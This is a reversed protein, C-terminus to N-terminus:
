PNTPATNTTTISTVTQRSTLAGGAAVAASELPLLTAPDFVISARGGDPVTISFQIGSRGTSDTRLAAVDASAVGALAAYTALRLMPPTVPDLLLQQANLFFLADATGAKVGLGADFPAYLSDVAGPLADVTLPLADLQARTPTAAHTTTTASGTARVSVDGNTGDVVVTRDTSTTATAFKEVRVGYRGGSGAATAAAVNNASALAGVQSAVGDSVASTGGFVMADRTTAFDFLLETVVPPPLAGSSPVLLLPAQKAGLNYGASLADPFGAGTAVGITAAAPFFQDAVQAATDYRDTGIFAQASPDAAAAPGGLAYRPGSPHAALYAATAPSQKAGATLLIAGGTVVAAPGAALADPFNLGTAEFVTSPDGLQHAIAVATAYRDAGYVRTPVDGLATVAKDVDPSIASPGGLVYVTSGLPAVRLIEMRVAADLAGQSTLLLPAGVKAALPTGALADPFDDARTLVVAHASQSAFYQNESSAIATAIRDAGSLRLFNSSTAAAAAGAFPAASILLAACLPLALAPKTV